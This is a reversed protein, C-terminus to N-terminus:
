QPGTRGGNGNEAYSTRRNYSDEILTVNCTPPAVDPYSDSPDSGRVSGASGSYCPYRTVEVWNSVPSVPLEVRPSAM